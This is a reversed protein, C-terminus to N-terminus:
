GAFSEKAKRVFAEIRRSDKVGNTEVGSSVDVGCPRTQRIAEAVNDPDLGGALILSRVACVDAALAWDARTGTGGAAGEAHGDILLGAPPRPASLFADIECVVGSVTASASPRLAKIAAVDLSKLFSPPEEGNLQVLDLDAEEVVANIESSPADVFVGVALIEGNVSKALRICSRAVSPTVQRRAPAFIFGILDAGARAAAAAHEPERVGCIKVIKGRSLLTALDM